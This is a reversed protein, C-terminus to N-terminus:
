SKGRTEPSQGKHWNAHHITGQCGCIFRRAIVVGDEVVDDAIVMPKLCFRCIIVSPATAPEM